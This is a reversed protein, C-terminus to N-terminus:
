IEKGLLRAVENVDKDGRGSLCIVVVEDKGRKGATKLVQAVAHASEIAPLIGELTCMTHFADLAEADTIGVYEVRGM